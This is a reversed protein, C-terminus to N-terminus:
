LLQDPPTSHQLLDHFTHSRLQDTLQDWAIPPEKDRGQGQFTRGM